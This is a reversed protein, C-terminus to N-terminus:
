FSEKEVRKVLRKYFEINTKDGKIEYIELMSRLARPNERDFKLAQKYDSLALDYKKLQMYADARELYSDSNKPEIAISQSVDAVEANYDKLARDAAGRGHYDRLALKQGKHAALALDFEGRAALAKDLKLLAEGKLRHAVGDEEGGTKLAQDAYSLASKFDSWSLTYKSLEAYGHQYKPALAVAKKMQVSAKDFELADAFIKAKLAYAAAEAPRMAIIKDLAALSKADEGSMELQQAELVDPALPGPLVHYDEITLLSTKNFNTLTEDKADIKLALAIEARATKVDGLNLLTLAKFRHATGLEAGPLAIAKEYYSMAGRLDGLRDLSIAILLFGHQFKPMLAIIRQEDAVTERWKSAMFNIDARGTLAPGCKPSRALISSYLQLAGPKNGNEAMAAARACLADTDDALVMQPACLYLGVGVGFSLLISLLIHNNLVSALYGGSAWM